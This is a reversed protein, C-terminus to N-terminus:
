IKNLNDSFEKVDDLYNKVWKAWKYLKSGSSINDLRVMKEAGTGFKTRIIIAEYRKGEEPELFEIDYILVFLMADFDQCKIANSIAKYKSLWFGDKKKIKEVLPPNIEDPDYFFKQPRVETFYGKGCQFKNTLERLNKCNRCDKFENM